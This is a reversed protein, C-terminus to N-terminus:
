DTQRKKIGSIKNQYSIINTNTSQEKNEKQKELFTQLTMLISNIDVYDYKQEECIQQLQKKEPRLKTLKM